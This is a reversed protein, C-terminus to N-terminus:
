NSQKRKIKNFSVILESLTLKPLMESLRHLERNLIRESTIKKVEEKSLYSNIVFHTRQISVGLIKAIDAYTLYERFLKVARPKDM